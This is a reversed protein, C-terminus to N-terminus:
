DATADIGAPLAENGDPVSDIFRIRDPRGLQVYRLSATLAGAHRLWGLVIPLATGADKAIRRALRAFWDFRGSNIDLNTEPGLRLFADEAMTPFQIEAERLLESAYSMRLMGSMMSLWTIGKGARKTVIPVFQSTRFLLRRLFIASQISAIPLLSGLVTVAGLALMANASSEHHGDIPHTDCASLLVIPPCRVRGNLQWIPVPQNGIVLASVGSSTDRAGHGDFIMLAGRFGALAAVFEDPTSVDVFRISYPLAEGDIQTTLATELHSRIPDDAAFSRVVLVTDLAKPALVIDSSMACVDMCLNGPTVSVRYVNHQLGLPCGDVPLWELPLDSLLAVSKRQNSTLLARTHEDLMRWADDRFRSVLKRLKFQRHPGSGRACAGIDSLIARTRNMGPNLRVVPVLRVSSILTACATLASLESARMQLITQVKESALVPKLSSAEHQSFYHQRRFLAVVFNAMASDLALDLRCTERISEASWGFAISDLVLTVSDHALSQAGAPLLSRLCERLEEISRAIARSYAQDNSAILQHKRVHKIELLELCTENPACVNHGFSPTASNRPPRHSPEEAAFERFVPAISADLLPIRSQIYPHLISRSIVSTGLQFIQDARLQLVGQQSAIQTEVDALTSSTTVVVNFLTPANQLSRLLDQIPGFFSTFHTLGLRRCLAVTARDTYLERIDAPL